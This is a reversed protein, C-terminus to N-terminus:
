GSSFQCEGAAPGAEMGLDIAEQLDAVELSFMSEEAEVPAFDLVITGEHQGAIEVAFRELTFCDGLMLVVGLALPNVFCSAAPLALARASMVWIDGVAQRCM